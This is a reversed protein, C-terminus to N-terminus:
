GAARYAGRSNEGAFERPLRRAPFLELHGELAEGVHLGGADAALANGHLRQVEGALHLEAAAQVEVGMVFDAGAPVLRFLASDWRLPCIMLKQVQVRLPGTPSPHAMWARVARLPCWSNEPKRSREFCPSFGASTCSSFNMPTSKTRGTCCPTAAATSLTTTFSQALAPPHRRGRSGRGPLREGPLIGGDGVVARQRFVRGEPFFHPVNQVDLDVAVRVHQLAQAEGAELGVLGIVALVGVEVRQALPHGALHVEPPHEPVAFDVAVAQHHKDIRRRGLLQQEVAMAVQRLRMSRALCSSQSPARNGNAVMVPVSSLPVQCCTSRSIWASIATAYAM